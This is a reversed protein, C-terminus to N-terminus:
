RKKRFNKISSSELLFKKLLKMNGSNTLCFEKITIEASESILIFWEIGGFVSFYVHHRDLRSESFPTIVDAHVNNERDVLLQGWIPFAKEDQPDLKKIMHRIKEAYPGLKVSEWVTKRSCHARWLNTLIMLKTVAYNLGSLPFELNSYSTPLISRWREAFPNEIHKSIYGECDTCLLFDRLGKQIYRKSGESLIEVARHKSDYLPKFMFEPIIHSECLDKKAECLACTMPSKTLSVVHQQQEEM